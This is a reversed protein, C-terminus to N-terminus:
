ESILRSFAVLELLASLDLLDAFGLLWNSLLFFLELELLPLELELLLLLLEPEDEFLELRGGALEELLLLGSREELSPFSPLSVWCSHCHCISLLKQRKQPLPLWTPRSQELAMDEAEFALAWAVLVLLFDSVVRAVSEFFYVATRGGCLYLVANVREMSSILNFEIHGSKQRVGEYYREFGIIHGVM